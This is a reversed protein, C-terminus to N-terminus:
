AGSAQSLAGALRGSANANVLRQMVVHAPTLGDKLSAALRVRRDWQEIIREVNGRGRPLPLLAGDDADRDIRSLVQDPLDKLRPMFTIGLLSCLGFRHETFDRTDSAHERIALATDNDLIGGLVYGAERPACSIALTNGTTRMPRVNGAADVDLAGTGRAWRCLRRLADLRRNATAPRRGAAVVHQRCGILQYETRGKIAFISDQVTRHWALFHRLDHRYGRLTAPALDDRALSALFPAM